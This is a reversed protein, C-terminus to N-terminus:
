ESEEYDIWVWGLLIKTMTRHFCNPKKQFAFSLNDNIRYEGVHRIPNFGIIKGQYTNM